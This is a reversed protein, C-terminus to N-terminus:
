MKPVFNILLDNPIEKFCLLSVNIYSCRRVLVNLMIYIHWKHCYHFTSFFSLSNINRNTNRM